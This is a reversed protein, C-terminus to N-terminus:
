RRRRGRWRVTTLILDWANRISITLLLLQAGAFFELSWEWDRWILVASLVLGLYAAAPIVGYAFHDFVTVMPGHNLFIRASIFAAVAFGVIGTLAILTATFTASHPPALGVASMLLVVAFHIVIPSFYIRTNVINKDTVFGEGVSVAVFLLALLAAAAAGLMLYFEHWEHLHAAM